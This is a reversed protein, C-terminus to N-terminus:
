ILTGLIKISNAREQQKFVAFMHDLGIIDKELRESSKRHEERLNEYDRKIEQELSLERSNLFRRIDNMVSKLALLEQEYGRDLEAKHSNASMLVKMRSERLSELESVQKQM